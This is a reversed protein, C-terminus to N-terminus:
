IAKGDVASVGAFFAFSIPSTTSSCPCITKGYPITAGDTESHRAGVSLSRM